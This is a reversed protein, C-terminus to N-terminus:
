AEIEDSDLVRVNRVPIGTTKTTRAECDLRDRQLQRWAPRPPDGLDRNFPRAPTEGEVPGDHEVSLQIKGAAGAKELAENTLETDIVLALIKKKMQHAKRLPPDDAPCHSLCFENCTCKRDPM